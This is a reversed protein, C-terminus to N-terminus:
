GAWATAVDLAQEPTEAWRALPVDRTWTEYYQRVKGYSNDLVVHPVGLLLCLIHGHLRDTIVVRGEALMACGARVRERGVMMALRWLAPSAAALVTPHAGIWARLAREGRALRTPRRTLWDITTHETLRAGPAAERDRRALWVVPTRPTRPRAIPGMAFAMDPCLLSPARFHSRATEQSRTDRTLITFRPHADFVARADDLAAAQAFFLTQPLQLIRASPFDALVRQRFRQSHPWLDGLNGGGSLLIIGDGLRSALADRSYTDISCTYCMTKGARRLFAVTGMLIASDGINEHVPVDLLAVRDVGALLPRITDDIRARLAAILATAPTGATPRAAAPELHSTM